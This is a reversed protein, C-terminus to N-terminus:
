YFSCPSLTFDLGKGFEFLWWKDSFFNGHDFKLIQLKKENIKM